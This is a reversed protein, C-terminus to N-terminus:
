KLIIGICEIHHTQPFMDVPQVKKLELGNEKFVRIDRAFTAPNCSVYILQFDITKSLDCLSYVLERNLGDRPPDLIIKNFQKMAINDYQRLWSNVNACIFECNKAKNIKANSNADNIADQVIDVGIIKKALTSLYIGITGTGCFLDLVSDGIKIEAFEKIKDYLTKIGLSNTQFFSEPSIQFTFKGIKEYIIPSGFLLRRRARSLDRERSTTHYCSKIEPFERKLMALLEEKYPLDNDKTIFELMFEGTGKGERIRLQSLSSLITDSQQATTSNNLVKKIATLMKNNTESQLLCSDILVLQNFDAYDHMAFAIQGDKDKTFFFRIVNRYYFEADGGPIIPLIETEINARSLTEKFIEEKFKLQNKYAINQHDCGGCRDFYPCKPTIRDSSPKIIDKIIAEAFSKKDKTIEVELEDGPVSKKVFIAKGTESVSLDTRDHGLGKGEFILKEIELKMIKVVLTRRATGEVM